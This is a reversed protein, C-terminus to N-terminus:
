SDQPVTVGTKIGSVPEHNADHRPLKVFLEHHLTFIHGFCNWTFPLPRVDYGM